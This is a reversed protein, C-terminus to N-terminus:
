RLRRSAEQQITSTIFPPAPPRKRLKKEISSIFLDKSKIDDAIDQATVADTILFRKGEEEERNIVLENRYKYLRARFDAGEGHEARLLAEITWYEEKNFSEIERERDVVIKVAVSQVRGASLGRRVKKWLFPSLKYGVLRDLIRRAQQAEV